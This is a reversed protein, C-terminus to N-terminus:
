RRENLKDLVSNVLEFERPEYGVSAHSQVITFRENARAVYYSKTKVRAPRVFRPTDVSSTDEGKCDIRLSILPKPQEAFRERPFGVLVPVTRSGGKRTLKKELCKQTHYDNHKRLSNWPPLFM